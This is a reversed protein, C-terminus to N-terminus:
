PVRKTFTAPLTRPGRFVFTGWIDLEEYPVDISFDDLREVIERFACKMEMRALMAGICRHIGVGFTLHQGANKRNPDVEDAHDFKATDRNASSFCLWVPSGKPIRVGGIECDVKAFRPLQPVPSEFRLVEEVFRQLARNRDPADRLAQVLEPHRGLIWTGWSIGNRTTENGAALLGVCISLLEAMSLEPAVPDDIRAHVLDSIMDTGRRERREAIAQAIYRHMDMIDRAYGVAQERSIGQGLPVVAADSWKKVDDIRSRPVALLDSIVYIATPISYATVVEARGADIFRDMLERVISTIHPEMAAVREASFAQEVLGRRRAHTPPDVQFNDSMIHPGFGERRMMEDLEEQWEAKLAEAFGLENSLEETMRAAQQVDQYRTVLWAHAREDFHVPAEARMRAYYEFPDRITVPDMLSLERLEGMHSDRRGCAAAAFNNFWRSCLDVDM